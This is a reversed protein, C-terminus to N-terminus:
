LVPPALGEAPFGLAAIVTMDDDEDTPILEESGEPESEAAGAAAAAAARATAAQQATRARVRSAVEKFNSSCGRKDPQRREPKKPAVGRTPATKPSPASAAAPAPTTEKETETEALSGCTAPVAAAASPVQLVGTRQAVATALMAARHALAASSSAGVEGLLDLLGQGLVSDTACIAAMQQAPTLAVQLGVASPPPDPQTLASRPSGRAARGFPAIRSTAASFAGTTSVVYPDYAAPLEDDSRDQDGWFEQGREWDSWETESWSRQRDGARAQKAADEVACDQELTAVSATSRNRDATVSAIETQTATLKRAQLIEVETLKALRAELTGIYLQTAKLQVSAPKGAFQRTEASALQAELQAQAVQGGPLVGRQVASLTSRLQQILRPLETQEHPARNSATWSSQKWAGSGGRASHRRSSGNSGPDASRARSKSRPPSWAQSQSPQPWQWGHSRGSWDWQWNRGAPM